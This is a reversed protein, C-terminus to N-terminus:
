KKLILKKEKIEYIKDFSDLLDKKHTIFIVTKKGKFESILNLFSLENIKDLASTSEDFILIKPDHYLARLINLRQKQGVSLKNGDEGILTDLGKPLKNIFESFRSDKVIEEIRENSYNEVGLAINARVTDDSLFIKQPVYGIIQRFSKYNKSIDVDDVLIRGKNPTLLGCLLNVLTSKGSGSEGVIGVFDNKNLEFNVNEFVKNSNQYKFHLDEFVIKHNFLIEDCNKNIENSSSKIENLLVPLVPAGFKISQLNVTIRNASPLLKFACVAYLSLLSLIEMKSFGRNILLFILGILILITFLELFVKIINNLFLLRKTLDISINSSYKFHKLFFNNLNNIKILIIGDIAERLIKLRDSLFNQKIRGWEFLKKNIVKFYIMLLIAMISIIIILSLPDVIFLFICVCIVFGFETILVVLPMLCQYVYTNSLEIINRTKDSSNQNIFSSYNKNISNIFISNTIEKQVEAVFSQNFYFVFTLFFAKIIFVSLFILMLTKFTLKQLFKFMFIKDYFLNLESSTDPIFSAVMPIILTIGVLESIVAFFILCLLFFFRIKKQSPILKYIQFYEHM